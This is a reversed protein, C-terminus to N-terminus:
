KFAAKSPLLEYNLWYDHEFSKSPFKFRTNELDFHTKSCYICSKKKM